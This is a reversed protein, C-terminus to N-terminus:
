IYQETSIFSEDDVKFPVPHFNSLPNLAGFFGVSDESEKITVKYPNLDEPLQQLNNLTYSRGLIVLKDKDMRCRGKYDDHNRAARLIPQLLKRRYEIDSAYERDVYIGTELYRRNDMIYDADCKLTFEVSIPRDYNENYKGLRRARRIEMCKAAQKHETEDEADIANAIANYILEVCDKENEKAMERIGTLVLCHDLGRQEVQNLKHKLNDHEMELVLVQKSLRNNESKIYNVDEMHQQVMPNSAILDAMRSTMKELADNLSKDIISQLNTSLSSTLSSILSTHLRSEMEKGNTTMSTTLSKTLSKELRQEIDAIHTSAMMIETQINTLLHDAKETPQSVIAKKFTTFDRWYSKQAKQHREKKLLNQKQKIRQLKGIRQCEDLFKQVHAQTTPTIVVKKKTTNKSKPQRLM